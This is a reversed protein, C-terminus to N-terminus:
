GVREWLSLSFSLHGGCGTMSTGVTMGAVEGGTMGATKLPVGADKRKGWSAM